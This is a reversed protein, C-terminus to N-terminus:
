RQGFHQPSYKAANEYQTAERLKAVLDPHMYLTNGIKYACPRKTEIRVVRWNKRKKDRGSAWRILRYEVRVDVALPHTVIKFGLM